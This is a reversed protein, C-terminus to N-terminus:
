VLRRKAGGPEDQDEKGGYLEHCCVRVIRQRYYQPKSNHPKWGRTWDQSFSIASSTSELKFSSNSFRRSPLNRHFGHKWFANSSSSTEQYLNTCSFRFCFKMILQNLKWAFLEGWGQIYKIYVAIIGVKLYHYKDSVQPQFEGNSKPWSIQRANWIMIRVSIMITKTKLLSILQSIKPAM